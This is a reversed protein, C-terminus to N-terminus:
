SLDFVESSIEFAVPPKPIGPKLHGKYSICFILSISSSIFNIELSGPKPGLDALRITKFNILLRSSHTLGIALTNAM